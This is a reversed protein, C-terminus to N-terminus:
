VEVVFKPLFDLDWLHRDVLRKFDHDTNQARLVQKRAGSTLM